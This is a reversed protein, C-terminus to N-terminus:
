RKLVVVMIVIAALGLFSAGVAMEVPISGSNGNSDGSVKESTLFSFKNQFFDSVKGVMEVVTLKFNQLIEKLKNGSNGSQITASEKFEKPSDFDLNPSHSQLYEVLSVNRMVADWVNPDSAISAVVSQAAASESLLAFAKMAHKTVPSDPQFSTICSKTELYESNSLLSHGSVPGVGFSGGNVAHKPSALYEKDLFDKLDFTASKAEDLSPAGGFVLRAMPEVSVSEQDVDAFEWDDVMDWSPKETAAAVDAGFGGNKSSSSSIMAPFPRSVNRVSQEASPMSPVGGRMGSNVLGIGAVKAAARMAAGGGM